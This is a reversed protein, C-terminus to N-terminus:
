RTEITLGKVFSRAAFPLLHLFLNLGWTHSINWHLNKGHAAKWVAAAVKEPGLRVGMRKVSFVEQATELLLTKVYPPRIDCVFIGHTEM